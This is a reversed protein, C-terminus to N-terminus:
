TQQVTADARLAVLSVQADNALRISDGKGDFALGASVTVPPNSASRTDAARVAFGEVVGGGIAQALRRREERDAKRQTTMDEGSLLRGNFFNVSRVNDNDFLPTFVATDAM